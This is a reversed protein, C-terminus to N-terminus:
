LGIEELEKRERYAKQRCANSCYEKLRKGKHINDIEKGCVKCILKGDDDKRQKELIIRHMWNGM